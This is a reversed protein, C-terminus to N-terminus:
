YDEDEFLHQWEKVTDWVFQEKFRKDYEANFTAQEADTMDAFSRGKLGEGTIWEHASKCRGAWRAVEIFTMDFFVIAPVLRQGHTMFADLLEPSDEVRVIALEMGPVEESVRALVAVSRAVDPSKDDVIAVVQLPTRNGFDGLVEEDFEFEDYFEKLRDTDASTSALYEEWSLGNNYYDSVDIQSDSM